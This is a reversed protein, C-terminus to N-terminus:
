RGMGLLLSNTPRIDLLGGANVGVWWGEVPFAGGNLGPDNPIPISTLFAPSPFGGAVFTPYVYLPCGPLWPIPDHVALDFVLVGLYGTPGHDSGLMMTTGLEPRTATLRPGCGPAVPEVSAGPDRVAFLERGTAPTTAAMYLDGGCMTLETPSAVTCVRMTGATTGDSHWLGIGTGDDAAFWVDDGVAVIEDPYSHGAGVRIDRVLTTGATTGDSSWLEIGTTGDTAAFFLRGDAWTLGSPSGNGSGPRIDAVLRTSSADM